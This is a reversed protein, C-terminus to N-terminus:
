LFRKVLSVIRGAGWFAFAIGIPVVLLATLTAADTLLSALTIGSFM